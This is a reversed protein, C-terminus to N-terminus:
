KAAESTWSVSKPGVTFQGRRNFCAFWPRQMQRFRRQELKPKLQALGSVWEMINEPSNHATALVGINTAAAMEKRHNNYMNADTTLLIWGHSNCCRIVRPDEVNHERNRTPDPFHKRFRELCFGVKVLRDHADDGDFGEDLFLVLDERWRKYQDNM